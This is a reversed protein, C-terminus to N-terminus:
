IGSFYLFILFFLLLGNLVVGLRWDAKGDMRVIFHGYLPVVFGAASCVIAAIGCIGELRGANGGSLVARLLVFVTLGFAIVFLAVAVTMYSLSRLGGKPRNGAAAM